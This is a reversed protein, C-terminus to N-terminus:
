GNKNKIPKFYDKMSNFKKEGIRKINMLEELKNIKGNNNRYDIISQATKEGIGPISSLIKVDAINIDISNLDPTKKIEKVVSIKSKILSDNSIKDIEKVLVTQISDDTVSSRTQSIDPNKLSLASLGFLGTSLLFCLAFIEQKLLHHKLYKEYIFKM